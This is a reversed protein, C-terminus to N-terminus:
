DQQDHHAPRRGARRGRHQGNHCHCHQAGRGGPSAIKLKKLRKESLSVQRRNREEQRKMTYAVLWVVDSNFKSVFMKSYTEDSVPLKLGDDDYYVQKDTLKTVVPRKEIGYKDAAASSSLESDATTEVVVEEEEEEISFMISPGRQFSCMLQSLMLM